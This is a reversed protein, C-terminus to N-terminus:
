EADEKHFHNSSSLYKSRTSVKADWAQEMKKELDNLLLTGLKRPRYKNEIELEHIVWTDKKDTLSDRFTARDYSAEMLWIFQSQSKFFEPVLFINKESHKIFYSKALVSNKETYVHYRQRVSHGWVIPQMQESNISLDRLKQFPALSSEKKRAMWKTFKKSISQRSGEDAIYQNILDILPENDIKQTSLDKHELEMRIQGAEIMESKIQVAYEWKGKKKEVRRLRFSHFSKRISWNPTDFYIDYTIYQSHPHFVFPSILSLKEGILQNPDVLYKRQEEVGTSALAIQSVFFITTIFKFVVM